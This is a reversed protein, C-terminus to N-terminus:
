SFCSDYLLFYKGSNFKQRRAMLKSHHFTVWSYIKMKRPSFKKWCTHLCNCLVSQQLTHWPMVVNNGLLAVDHAWHPDEQDLRSVTMTAVKTLSWHRQFKIKCLGPSYLFLHLSYKRCYMPAQRPWFKERTFIQPIGRASSLGHCAQKDRNHSAKM